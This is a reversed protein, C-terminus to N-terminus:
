DLASADDKMLSNQHVSMKQMGGFSMSRMPLPLDTVAPLVRRM